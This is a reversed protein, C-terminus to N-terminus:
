TGLWHSSSSASLSSLCAWPPWPISSQGWWSRASGPSLVRPWCYCYWRAGCPGAAATNRRSRTKSAPSQQRLVRLAFFLGLVYILLMTFATGLSLWEVPGQAEKNSFFFLSPIVLALVAMMLQTANHGAHRRDFRQIGNKAGGLLTSFGLVLLVNGLISGIISAKALDLLGAQIAFLTIMLEAANGLTANLLGGLRPGTRLAIEETAQGLIGAAPIVALASAIFLLTPSLGLFSGVIAVLAFVLLINLYKM